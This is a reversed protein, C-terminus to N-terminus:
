EVESECVKVWEDNLKKWDVPTSAERWFFICGDQLLFEAGGDKLQASLDKLTYPLIELEFSYLADHDKLFQIFKNKM